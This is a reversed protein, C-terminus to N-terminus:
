LFYLEEDRSPPRRRARGTSGQPRFLSEFADEDDFADGMQEELAEPDEGAELRSLYEALEGSPEVGAAEGFRRFLRAAARPDEDDVVEDLEDGLSDLAQELRTEDFPGSLEEDEPGAATPSSSIAAFRAPRRILRPRGCRPCDPRSETDVRQSLFNFLRHCSPCYFEYIPM